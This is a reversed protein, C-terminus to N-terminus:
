SLTVYTTREGRGTMKLILEVNQAFLIFPLCSGDMHGQLDRQCSNPLGKLWLEYRVLSAGDRHSNHLPRGGRGTCPHAPTPRGRAAFCHRRCGFYHLSKDIISTYIKRNGQNQITHTMSNAM